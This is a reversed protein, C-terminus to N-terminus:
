SCACQLATVNPVDRKQITSGDNILISLSKLKSVVCCADNPNVKKTPNNILGIRNHFLLNGHSPCPGKCYNIPFKTPTVVFGFGIDAFKVTHPVLCCANKCSTTTSRRKRTKKIKGVNFVLFPRRKKSNVFGNEGGCEECVIEISVNTIMSHIGKSKLISTIDLKIWNRNTEMIKPHGILHSLRNPYGLIRAILLRHKKLIKKTLVQPNRRVVLIVSSVSDLKVNANFRLVQPESHELKLSSELSHSCTNLGLETNYIYLLLM